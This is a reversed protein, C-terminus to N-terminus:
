NDTLDIVVAFWFFGFLGFFGCFGFLWVAWIGYQQFFGSLLDLMKLPTDDRAM